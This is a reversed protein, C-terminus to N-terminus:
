GANSMIWESAMSRAKALSDQDMQPAIEDRLHAAEEDGNAAAINLWFHALVLDKTVGCAGEYMSGLLCQAGPHGKKAAPTLWNLAEGYDQLVGIGRAYFEGVRFQLGPSALRLQAADDGAEAAAVLAKIESPPPRVDIQAVMYSDNYPHFECHGMILSTEGCLGKTM